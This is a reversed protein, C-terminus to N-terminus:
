PAVAWDNGFHYLVFRSYITGGAHKHVCSIFLLSIHDPAILFKLEEEQQNLHAQRM